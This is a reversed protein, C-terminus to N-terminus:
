RDIVEREESLINLAPTGSLQGVGDLLYVYNRLISFYMKKKEMRNKILDEKIELLVLPDVGSLQQYKKLSAEADAETERATLLDFRTIYAEMDARDKEIKVALERRLRFADEADNLFDIRRRAIDERSGSIFPLKFGVEIIYALNQDYSRGQRYRVTEENYSGFDFAFDLSSVITRNRAREVNYRKNSFEFESMVNRLHFNTSDIVFSITGLRAKITAISILGATDIGGSVTDGAITRIYRDATAVEQTEEINESILKALDKETKILETLDFDTSAKLQEMVKIRDEYVPIQERYGEALSKRELIDIFFIYRELLLESLMKESVAKEYDIQARRFERLARTEGVGRPTLCLSYRQTTFDFARNRVKFEADGILPVSPIMKELLDVHGRRAIILSDDQAAALFRGLLSAPAATGASLVGLCLLATFCRRKM